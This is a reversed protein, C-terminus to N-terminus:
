DELLPRKSILERTYRFAVETGIVTGIETTLYRFEWIDSEENERLLESLILGGDLGEHSM